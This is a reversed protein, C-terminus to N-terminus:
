VWSFIAAAVVLPARRTDSILVQALELREGVITLVLFGVWSPVVGVIPRGGLWLANGILWAAAGAILVLTSSDPRLRYIRSFFLILLVGSAVLLAAGIQTPIAALLIVSGLAALAPAAMAWREALIVARELAIVVGLFDDVTYGALDPELPPL